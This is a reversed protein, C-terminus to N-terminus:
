AALQEEIGQLLAVVIIVPVFVLAIGAAASTADFQAGANMIYTGVGTRQGLM